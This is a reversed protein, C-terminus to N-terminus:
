GGQDQLYAIIARRDEAKPLGAFAMATGPVVDAPRTLWRDLAAPDWVFGAAKLAPSYTYDPLSGAKRGVVGHLNPGIRAVGGPAVDHCSACRLFLIKGRARLADSAAPPQQAAASAALATALAVAICVV